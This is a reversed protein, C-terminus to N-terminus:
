RNLGTAKRHEKGRKNMRAWRVWPAWEVVLSGRAPLECRLRPHREILESTGELRAHNETTPRPSTLMSLRTDVITRQPRNNSVM